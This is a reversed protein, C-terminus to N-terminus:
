LCLQPPGLSNKQTRRRAFLPAAFKCYGDALECSAQKSRAM